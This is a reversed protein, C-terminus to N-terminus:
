QPSCTGRRVGLEVPSVYTAIKKAVPENLTSM